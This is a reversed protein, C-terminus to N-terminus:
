ALDLALRIASKMSDTRAINKGAIDFATGHSPSTRIASLGITTNVASDRAVLKMPILGQDHYIAVYCDYPIKEKSFYAAGFEAFAADSVLPGCVNLGQAKLESIAPKIINEEEKGLLGAEGAHPNLALIGIKPNQLNFKSCLVDNLRTIKDIIMSKSLYQSVSSLPIHRTLLLVRFDGSVFFMESKQGAQALFYELIETQGSFKHGAMNLVNKSVPATVINKVIEKN